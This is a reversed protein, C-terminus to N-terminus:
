KVSKTPNDEDEEDQERRGDQDDDAAYYFSVSLSVKEHPLVTRLGKFCLRM